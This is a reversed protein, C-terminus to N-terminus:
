SKELKNFYSNCYQVDRELIPVPGELLGKLDQITIEEFLIMENDSGSMAIAACHDRDLLMEHFEWNQRKGNLYLTTDNVIRNQSLDKTHISFSINQLDVTIGVGIAKVYSEKLCWHRYFMRIQEEESGQKISEWEYSSFQRCMLRFYESLRKGGKYEIKMVDVGLFKKGQSGVLVVFDGHHSVNFNAGELHPKIVIPKGRENRSFIVDNYPVVFNESVFKRMLLRGVLSSKFDNKYVFRGLREKEEQQIYSTCNLMEGFTPNWKSIKFAWCVHKEVMKTIELHIYRSLLKM